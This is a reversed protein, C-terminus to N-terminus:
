LHYVAVASIEAFGATRTLDAYEAAHIEPVLWFYSQLGFSWASASRWFAGGGAKAFPGLMGHDGLRLLYGGLEAGVCFEFPLASWWYATRFSLPAAFLSGGGVTGNFSGAITGGLALGRAIFYQYTLSFAGGAHLAADSQERTDPLIFLPMQLGASLGITQEGRLFPNVSATAEDATVPGAPAEAGPAPPADQAAARIAPSLALVIALGATAAIKLTM